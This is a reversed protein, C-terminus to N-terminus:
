WIVSDPTRASFDLTSEDMAISELAVASNVSQLRTLQEYQAATEATAFHYM